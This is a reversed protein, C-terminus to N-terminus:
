IETIEVTEGFCAKLIKFFLNHAPTAGLLGSEWISVDDDQKICVRKFRDGVSEITVGDIDDVPIVIDNLNVCKCDM